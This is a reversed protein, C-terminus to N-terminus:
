KSRGWSAASTDAGGKYTWMELYYVNTPRVVRITSELEDSTASIPRFQWFGNPIPFGVANTLALCTSWDGTKAVYVMSFQKLNTKKEVTGTCNISQYAVLSDGGVKISLQRKQVKVESSIDSVFSYVEWGAAKAKDRRMKEIVNVTAWSAIIGLIVVVILVEILTFGQQFLPRQIDNANKM